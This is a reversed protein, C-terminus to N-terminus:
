RERTTDCYLGTKNWKESDCDFKPLEQCRIKLDMKFPFYPLYEPVPNNFDIKNTKEYKM